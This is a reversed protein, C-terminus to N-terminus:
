VEVLEWLTLLEDVSIYLISRAPGPGTLAVLGDDAIATVRWTGSDGRQKWVQGTSVSSM